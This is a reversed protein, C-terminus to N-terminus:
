QPNQSLPLRIRARIEEVLQIFDRAMEEASSVEGPDLQIGGVINQQIMSSRTPAKREFMFSGIYAQTASSTLKVGHDVRSFLVQVLPTVPLMKKTVSITADHTNIVVLVQAGDNGGQWHFLKCPFSKIPM